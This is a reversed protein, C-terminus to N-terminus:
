LDEQRLYTQIEKLAAIAPPLMEHKGVPYLPEFTWENLCVGFYNVNLVQDEPRSREIQFAAHQELEKPQVPGFASAEELIEILEDLTWSKHFPNYRHDSPQYTKHVWAKALESRPTHQGLAEDILAGFDDKEHSADIVSVELKEFFTGRYDYRGDFKPIIKM